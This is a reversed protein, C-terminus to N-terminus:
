LKIDIISPTEGGGYVSRRAAFPNSRLDKLESRIETMRKSLLERNREVRIVAEEKLSTIATKLSPVDAKAPSSEPYAANYMAELPDIVKQISFIDALILEELEVHTVLDDATGETMGHEILEKQTDLVELYKRFRDRQAQLLERFRNLVAVRQQVEEPSLSTEPV